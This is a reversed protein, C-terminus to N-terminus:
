KLKVFTFLPKYNLYVNVCTNSFEKNLRSLTLVESRVVTIPFKLFNFKTFDLHSNLFITEHKFYDFSRSDIRLILNPTYLECMKEYTRTLSLLKPHIKMDTLKFYELKDLMFVQFQSVFYKKFLKSMNEIITFRYNQTNKYCIFRKQNFGLVNTIKYVKAYRM